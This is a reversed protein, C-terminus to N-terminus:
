NSEVVIVFGYFDIGNNNGECDDLGFITINDGYKLENFGVPGGDKFITAYPQVQIVEGSALTIREQVNDLGYQKIEGGTMEQRVEVIDAMTADFENLVVRAKRATCNVLEALLDKDIIGDGEMKSGAGDPLLITVSNLEGAPIFELEYGGDVAHMAEITGYNDQDEIFLAAAIYDGGVGKGIFRVGTGPKIENWDVETNCDTLILTQNDIAVNIEGVIAQGPDLKLIFKLDNGVATLATGHLKILDGIAVVSALVTLDPQMEGRVEVSQGIEISNTDAFSGNEDFVITAENVMVKIDDFKSYALKLDFGVVEDNVRNIATVTGSLIKPCLLNPPLKDVTRVEALIVPRFICKGSNGAAHINVSQKAKVDVDIVVKDNSKIPIGGQPNIKIVGSPLKIDLTDCSGGVTRIYDVTMRIQNYNRAPVNKVNLLFPKEKHALLDVEVCEDKAAFIVESGPELTLKNVCLIISDYEEAPSDRLLIAATGTQSAAVSGSGDTNSGGGGSGCGGLILASVILLAIFISGTSRMYIKM